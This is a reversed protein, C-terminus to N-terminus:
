ILADECMSETLDACSQINSAINRVCKVIQNHSKPMDNWLRIMVDAHNVFKHKDQRNKHEIYNTDWSIIRQIFDRLWLILGQISDTFVGGKPDAYWYKVDCDRKVEYQEKIDQMNKVVRNIMMVRKVHDNCVEDNRIFWNFIRLITHLKNSNIFTKKILNSLELSIQIIENNKDNQTQLDVYHQCRYQVSTQIGQLWKIIQNTTDSQNNIQQVCYRIAM